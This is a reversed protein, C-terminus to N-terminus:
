RRFPHKVVSGNQYVRLGVDSLPKLKEIIRKENKGLHENFSTLLKM